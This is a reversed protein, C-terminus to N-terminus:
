LLDDSGVPQLSTRVSRFVQTVIGRLFKFEVDELRQSIFDDLEAAGAHVPLMAIKDHEAQEPAANRIVRDSM